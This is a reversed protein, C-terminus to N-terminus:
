VIKSSEGRWMRESIRRGTRSRAAPRPVQDERFILQPAYREGKWKFASSQSEVADPVVVQM